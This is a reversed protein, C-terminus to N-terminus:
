QLYLLFRQLALFFFCQCSKDAMQLLSLLLSFYISTHSSLKFFYICNRDETGMGSYASHSLRM